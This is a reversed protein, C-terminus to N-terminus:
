ACEEALYGRFETDRSPRLSDLYDIRDIERVARDILEENKSRIGIELIDQATIKKM